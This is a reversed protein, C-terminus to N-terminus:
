RMARIEIRLTFNAVAGKRRAASRPMLVRVKYDGSKDIRITGGSIEAADPLNNGSPEFVVLEAKNKPLLELSLFQGARVGIVYDIYKYGVIKGRVTSSTAGRAFQVRKKQGTPQRQTAQANTELNGIAILAFFLFLSPLIKKM